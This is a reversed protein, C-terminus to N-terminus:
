RETLEPIRDYPNGHNQQKKPQLFNRAVAQQRNNTTTSSVPQALNKQYFAYGTKALQIAVPLWKKLQLSKPQQVIKQKVVKPNTTTTTKTAVTQKPVAKSISSKAVKQKKVEPVAQTVPEKKQQTIKKIFLYGLGAAGLPLAVRKLLVEQFGSNMMGMSHAFERQTVQMQLELKRRQKRLEELGHIDASDKM